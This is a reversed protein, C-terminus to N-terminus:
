PLESNLAEWQMLFEESQPWWLGGTPEGNRKFMINSGWDKVEDFYIYVDDTYNLQYGEQTQMKRIKM